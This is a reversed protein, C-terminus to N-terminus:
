KISVKLSLKLLTLLHFCFRKLLNWTQNIFFQIKMEKKKLLLKRLIKLNRRKRKLQLLISISNYYWSLPLESNTTSEQKPHSIRDLISLINKFAKTSSKRDWLLISSFTLSSSLERWTIKKMLTKKPSLSDTSNKLFINSKVSSILDGFLKGTKNQIIPRRIM